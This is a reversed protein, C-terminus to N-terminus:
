NTTAASSSSRTTRRSPWPPSRSRSPTPPRRRRAAELPARLERLLDAKTTSAPTSSPAKRSGSNSSPSRRGQPLPTAATWPRCARAQRHRHARRPHLQRRAQRRVIPDDKTGGKRFRRTVQDHRAQGQPEQGRPLRLLEGQPHRWTTSSASRGPRAAAASAACFPLGRGLCRRPSTLLSRSM